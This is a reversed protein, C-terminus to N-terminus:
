GIPYATIIDKGDTVVKILVGDREAIAEYRQVGGVMKNKSWTVGPDTVVDSAEHM